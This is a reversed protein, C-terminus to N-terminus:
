SGRSGPEDPTREGEHGHLADGCANAIDCGLTNIGVLTARMVNRRQNAHRLASNTEALERTLREIEAQYADNLCWPCTASSFQWGSHFTSDHPCPKCVDTSSSNRDTM